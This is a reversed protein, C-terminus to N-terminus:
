MLSKYLKKIINNMEKLIRSEEILSVDKTYLCRYNWKDSKPFQWGIGIMFIFNGNNNIKTKNHSELLTSGITEFDIFEIAQHEDIVHLLILVAVGSFAAVAKNVLEFTIAAYVVLFIIISILMEDM